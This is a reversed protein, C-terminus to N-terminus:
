SQAEKHLAPQGPIWESSWLPRVSVQGQRRLAPISPMHWMGAVVPEEQVCFRSWYICSLQCQAETMCLGQTRDRRGCLSPATDCEQHLRLLPDSTWFWTWNSRSNLALRPYMLGHRLFLVLYFSNVFHHIYTRTHTHTCTLTHTHIHIHTCTHMHTDM